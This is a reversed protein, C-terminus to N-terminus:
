VLYDDAGSNFGVSKDVIDGKASLFVVPVRRGESRILRCVDFGNMDPLMVDLVLVDPRERRLMELGAAGNDSCCYDWGERAAIQGVLERLSEDDDILMIKSM